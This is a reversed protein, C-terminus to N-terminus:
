LPAAINTSDRGVVVERVIGFVPGPPVVFRRHVPGDVATTQLFLTKRDMPRSCVSSGGVRRSVVAGPAKRRASSFQLGGHGAPFRIESGRTAPCM